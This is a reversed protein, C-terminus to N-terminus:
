EHAADISRIATDIDFPPQMFKKFAELAPEVLYPKADRDFFFAIAKAERLNQLERSAVQENASFSKLPSINGLTANYRNLAPSTALFALFRETAERNKGRTPLVLVDLPADEYKPISEVVKPFPFFGIDAVMEPPFKAAAFGGMLTMGVRNRYLYPLPADWAQVMTDPRFFGQKLLAQWHVFVNRVKPDTFRVEGALLRRHFEIGNIRLNLYDFWAAAPWGDQAGVAAPTIGAAQLRKGATQLEAWTTPPTLGLQAFLSKRYFFGWGYYSLPVAYSTGAITTSALAAIDFGNRMAARLDVSAIPRLLGKKVSDQLREGAFWFAIDVDQASLMPTFGAKYQEQSKVLQTIQIDPNAESFRNIVETQWATRQTGSSIMFSITLSQAAQTSSHCWVM